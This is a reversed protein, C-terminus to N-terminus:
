RVAVTISQSDNASDGIKLGVKLVGSDADVPVIANIQAIGSILGPAEGAYQIQAPRGGITVEVSAPLTSSLLSRGALKMRRIVLM